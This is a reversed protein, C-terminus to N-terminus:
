KFGMAPLSHEVFLYGIGMVILFIVFCGAAIQVMEKFFKSM